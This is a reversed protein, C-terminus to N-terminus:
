DKKKQQENKKVLSSNDEETEYFVFLEDKPKFLNGILASSNPEIKKGEYAIFISTGFKDPSEVIKSCYKMIMEKVTMNPQVQVVLDGKVRNVFM